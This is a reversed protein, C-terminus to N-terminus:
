QATVVKACSPAAKAYESTCLVKIADDKLGLSNFSRATERIGCEDDKWSTGVAISFGPGSGGINTGGMCPATPYTNGIGVDPTNKVTYTGGYRMSDPNQISLSQTSPAVSVSQSGTSNTVAGTAVRTDGGVVVASQGQFQAQRQAQAQWASANARVDNDIRTSNSAAAVATASGGHINEDLAFSNLSILSIFIFTLLRKM